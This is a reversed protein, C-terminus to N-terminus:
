LKLLALSVSSFPRHPSIFGLYHLRGDNVYQSLWLVLSVRAENLTLAPSSPLSLACTGYPYLTLRWAQPCLLVLYASCLLTSM